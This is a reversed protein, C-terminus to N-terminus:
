AGRSSPLGVTPFVAAGSSLAGGQFADDSVLSGRLARLDPPVKRACRPTRGREPYVQGALLEDDMAKITMIGVIDDASLQYSRNVINRKKKYALVAAATSSGYTSTTREAAAGDVGDLVFLASQIKAVHPGTAGRTIHGALSTAAVELKLDGALLNSKLPM